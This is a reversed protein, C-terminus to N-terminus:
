QVPVQQSGLPVWTAGLYLWLSLDGQTTPYGPIEPSTLGVDVATSGVPRTAGQEAVIYVSSYRTLWVYNSNSAAAASLTGTLKLQAKNIMCSPCIPDGPQPNVWPEIDSPNSATPACDTGSCAPLAPPVTGPAPAEGSPGPVVCSSSVGIAGLAACVSLRRVPLTHCAVGGLCFSPVALLPDIVQGADYLKAVLEAPSLTPAFSWAAAAVGSAVATAMSSGTFAVNPRVDDTIVAMGYATLRAQGGVRTSILPTDTQDVGGVAYLLPAYLERKAAAQKPDDQTKRDVPVGLRRCENINPAADQEWLAPYLAGNQSVPNRNGAAAFILAGRCAARQLAIKVAQAAAPAPYRAHLSQDWGLSLNIILKAQTQAREKDWAAVTAEIADALQMRSGFFGGDTYDLVDKDVQPMALTNEIHLGCDKSDLDGCALDNVVAGVARGHGFRDPAADTWAHAASDIVAVWVPARPAPKVDTTFSVRGAQQKYLKAFDAEPSGLAAASIVPVDIEFQRLPALAQLDAPVGRDGVWTYRCYVEKSTAVTVHGEWRGGKGQLVQRCAEPSPKQVTVADRAYALAQAQSGAFCTRQMTSCTCATALAVPVLLLGSWLLSRSRKKM